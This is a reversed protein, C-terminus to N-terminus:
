FDLQNKEATFHKIVEHLNEKPIQIGIHNIANFIAKFNELTTPNSLFISLISRVLSSLHKDTSVDIPGGANTKMIEACALLYSEQKYSDLASNLASLMLAPTKNILTLVTQFLNDSRYKSARNIIEPDNIVGGTLQFAEVVAEIFEVQYIPRHMMAWLVISQPIAVGRQKFAQAYKRILELDKKYIAAKTFSELDYKERFDSILKNYATRLEETDVKLIGPATKYKENLEALRCEYAARIEAESALIDVGLIEYYTRM